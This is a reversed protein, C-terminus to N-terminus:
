SNMSFYNSKLQTQRVFPLKFAKMTKLPKKEELFINMKLYHSKHDFLLFFMIHILHLLKRTM